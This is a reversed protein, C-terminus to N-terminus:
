LIKEIASLDTLKGVTLLTDAAEIVEKPGPNFVMEGSKKRIAIIILNFRPRIKSQILDLGVLESDETVFLEEMQLDIKGRMAIDLFNTVTPRLVSQAMRIGGITHPLVVRDAGAFELRSISTQNNGRAIINVDPNSQRAILTVYVNAAEDSLAAILTKANDLGAMKLIDDKTADGDICAIGAAEMNSILEPNSEIVVVELGEDMVEQAVIAGIRGYGCIIIHERLKGITKQMRRRGLIAQLRGEVLLQSFAGILYAFGGVGGLILFSTMIRGEDSLPLVEMFGVTSLTIVVMYFSNLFNWGELWMYGIIGGIFVLTMYIFGSILGWFLGLDRRLRLLKVFISKSKM